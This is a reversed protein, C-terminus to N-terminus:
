SKPLTASRDSTWDQVIVSGDEHVEILKNVTDPMTEAEDLARHFLRLQEKRKVSPVIIILGSHLETEAYLKLFDSRNNTVFVYDSEAILPMLNWDQAGDKGLFVVHTANHGRAQAAAVLAISLCEDILIGDM